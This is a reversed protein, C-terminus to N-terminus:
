VIISNNPRECQEWAKNLQFPTCVSFDLLRFNSVKIDLETVLSIYWTVPGDCAPPGPPSTGGLKKVSPNGTLDTLGIEVLPPVNDGGLIVHGGLNESRAVARLLCLDFYKYHEQNPWPM